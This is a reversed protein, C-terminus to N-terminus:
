LPSCPIWRGCFFRCAHSKRHYMADVRNEGPLPCCRFQLNTSPSDSQGLFPFQHGQRRDEPRGRFCVDGLKQLVFGDAAENSKYKHQSFTFGSCNHKILFHLVHRLKIVKQPADAPVNGKCQFLVDTEDDDFHMAISGGAEIAETAHKDVLRTGSSWGPPNSTFM